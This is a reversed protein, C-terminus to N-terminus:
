LVTPLAVVYQGKVLGLQSILMEGPGRLETGPATGYLLLQSCCLHVSVTVYVTHQMYYVLLHECYM